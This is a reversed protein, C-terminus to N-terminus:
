MPKQDVAGDLGFCSKVAQRISRADTSDSRLIAIIAGIYEEKNRLGCLQAVNSAPIMSKRNYVKLVAAYDRTEVYHKFQRCLEEYIRRPQIEDVLSRIHEELMNINNFRGDIRYEVTRKVRHRTHMLAQNRLDASFQSIIANSVKAFVKHEDLGRTRAVTRVVGELMLINEIEAVEPVMVRKGRLYGVEHEDRRDRDVIGYSDLHHFSNLDNFARTAEIVKNCSGLSKVTFEKFILPYLKADISHIGDGEIFLVPKRAGIIAQYVDEGIDTNSDLVVYDWALASPDYDRVWVATAGTRSAAFELDHTTYVFTCDPRLGEIRSWLPQMITPHLFMEPSNIFIVSQGPAYLVGALYYMVAREGDSLKLATYRDADNDRGFLVSGNEVLVRNGPFIDQWIDIVTDLRTSPLSAAEDSHRALKYSLLNAMEDHMLLSLLCDLENIHSSKAVTSDYLGAAVYLKGVSSKAPDSPLSSYLGHLASLSFAKEGLSEVLSATFRSKGAGNAGIIIVPAGGTEIVAPQGSLRRTLRIEM